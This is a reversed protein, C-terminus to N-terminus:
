LIRVKEEWRKILNRVPESELVTKLPLGTLDSIRKAYQYIPRPIERGLLAEILPRRRLAELLFGM